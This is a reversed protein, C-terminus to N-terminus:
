NRKKKTVKNIIVGVILCVSMALVYPIILLFAISPPYCSSRLSVFVLTVNVIMALTLVAIIGVIIYKLSKKM